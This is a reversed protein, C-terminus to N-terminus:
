PRESGSEAPSSEQLVRLPAAEDTKHEYCLVGGLGPFRSRRNPCGKRYLCIRCTPKRMRRIVLVGFLAYFVAFLYMVPSPHMM